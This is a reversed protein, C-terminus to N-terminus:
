SASVTFGTIDVTAGSAVPGTVSATPDGILFTGATVATWLGCWVNGAVSPMSTFSAQATAMTQSGGSPATFTVAQRTTGAIENAGTTGPDASHVSMWYTTGAALGGALANDAYTTSIDPM